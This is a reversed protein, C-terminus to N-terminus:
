SAKQLLPELVKYYDTAHFIERVKLYNPLFTNTKWYNNEYKSDRPEDHLRKRFTAMNGRLRNHLTRSTANISTMVHKKVFRYFPTVGKERFTDSGLGEHEVLIFLYAVLTVRDKDNGKLEATQDIGYFALCIERFSKALQEEDVFDRFLRSPGGGDEDPMSKLIREMKRAIEVSAWYLQEMEARQSIGGAIHTEAGSAPYPVAASKIIATLERREVINLEGYAKARYKKRRSMGDVSDVPAMLEVHIGEKRLIEARNKTMVCLMKVKGDPLDALKLTRMGTKVYSFASSKEVMVVDTPRRVRWKRKLAKPLGIKYQEKKIAKM